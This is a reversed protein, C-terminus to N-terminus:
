KEEQNEGIFELVAKTGGLVIMNIYRPLEKAPLKLLKEAMRSKQVARLTNWWTSNLLSAIGILTAGGAVAGAVAGGGGGSVGGIVSGAGIGGTTAISKILGFWKQGGKREATEALIDYLETNMHYVQNIKAYDPNKTNLLNRISADVIRVQSLTSSDEITQMAKRSEYLIAGYQGALDRLQEQKVPLEDLMMETTKQWNDITNSIAKNKLLRDPLSEKVKAVAEMIDDGLDLSDVIDGAEKSYHRLQAVVNTKFSGTTDGKLSQIDVLLGQLANFKGKNVSIVSGSPTIYKAMEGQIVDEIGETSIIGQLEGLKEYESSSLAMGKKAKEMLDSFKGWTGEDLLEPIIKNAKEKYKEKTTALGRQYQEIAKNRLAQAKQPALFQNRAFLGGMIGGIIGGSLGGIGTEFFTEKASKDNQLATGAGMLSGSVAGRTGAKVAGKFFAGGATRVGQMAVKGGGPIIYSALELGTGVAEKTSSIPQAKGFYGMDWKVPEGAQIIATRAKEDKGLIKLIGAEATKYIGKGASAVTSATKTFPSVIGQAISQVIGVKQGEPSIETQTTKTKNIGLSNAVEEVDQATPNGDFNVVTGNEFKIKAM